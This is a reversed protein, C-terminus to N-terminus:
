FLYKRVVPVKKFIEPYAFARIVPGSKLVNFFNKLVRSADKLAIKIVPTVFNALVESKEPEIIKIVYCDVRSPM